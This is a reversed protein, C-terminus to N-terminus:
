KRKRWAYALLGFLGCALLALGGPEPVAVVENSLGYYHWGYRTDASSPTLSIVLEGSSTAKYRYNVYSATTGADEQVEQSSGLPDTGDEDFGVMCDRPDGVAWARYYLRADYTYGPTLGTLTVVTAGGGTDSGHNYMCDKILDNVGGTAAATSGSTYAITGQPVEHKYNLAPLDLETVNNIYVEDFTVENVTAAGQNGADILHTYTKSKSIGSSADDTFHTISIFGAQATTCALIALVALVVSFVYSNRYQM